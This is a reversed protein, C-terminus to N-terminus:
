LYFHTGLWILISIIVITGFEIGHDFFSLLLDLLLLCLGLRFGFLLAEELARDGASNLLLL